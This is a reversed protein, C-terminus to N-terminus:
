KGIKVVDSSPVWSDHEKNCGFWRVFSFSKGNVKKRRLVRTVSWPQNADPIVVLVEEPYFSGDVEKGWYDELHVVPPSTDRLRSVSFIQPSWSGESSKHFCKRHLLAREKDGVKDGVKLKKKVSPVVPKGNIKNFLGLENEPTVEFPSIGLTRHKTNKYDRVIEPLASVFHYKGTVRFWSFIRDRLTHIVREAQSAKIVPSLTSYM